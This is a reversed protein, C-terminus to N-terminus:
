AGSCGIPCIEVVVSSSRLGSDLDLDSDGNVDLNSGNDMDV